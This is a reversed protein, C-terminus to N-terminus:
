LLLLAVCKDLTRTDKEYGPLVHLDRPDAHIMSMDLKIAEGDSSVVELGTLGLYYVDGWTATFNLKLGVIVCRMCIM